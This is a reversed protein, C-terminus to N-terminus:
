SLIRDNNIKKCLLADIPKYLLMRIQDMIVSACFVIVISLVWYLVARFGFYNDFLFMFQRTYFYFIASHGFLCALASKAIHNIVKNNPMKINVFTLLFAVSSLIVLPNNYAYWWGIVDTTGYGLKAFFHAGVGIIVSCSFYFWISYKNLWKPVGHLRIARALLYLVCFPFVGYGKGGCIRIVPYPPLWDFWFQLLILLFVGGM